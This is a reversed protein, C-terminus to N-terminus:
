LVPLIKRQITQESCMEFFETEFFTDNSYISTFEFVIIGFFEKLFVSYIESLKHGCFSIRRFFTKLICTSLKYKEAYINRLLGRKGFDIM